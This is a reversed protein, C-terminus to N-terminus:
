GRFFRCRSETNGNVCGSKELSDQTHVPNPLRPQLGPAQAKQFAWTSASMWLFTPVVSSARKCSIRPQHGLLTLFSSPCPPTQILARHQSLCVPRCPFPVNFRPSGIDGRHGDAIPGFQIFNVFGAALPDGGEAGDSCFGCGRSCPFAFLLEDPRWAVTALDRPRRRPPWVPSRVGSPWWAAPLRAAWSGRQSGLEGGGSQLGTWVAGAVSNAFMKLEKLSQAAVTVAM